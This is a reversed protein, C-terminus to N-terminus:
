FKIGAAVYLFPSDFGFDANVGATIIFTEVFEYGVSVDFVPTIEDEQKSTNAPLGNQQYYVSDKFVPSGNDVWNVFDGPQVPVSQWGDYYYKTKEDVSRFTLGVGGQLYINVQSDVPLLYLRASLLFEIDEVKKEIDGNYDIFSSYSSNGTGNFYQRNNGRFGYDEESESHTALCFSPGIMMHSFVANMLDIRAYVGASDSIAVGAVVNSYTDGVGDDSYSEPEGTEDFTIHVEASLNKASITCICFMVLFVLMIKNSM